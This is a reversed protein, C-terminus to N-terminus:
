ASFTIGGSITLGSPITIGPPPATFIVNLNNGGDTSNAGVYFRSTQNVGIDTVSLYDIGVSANTLNFTRRTGGASSNVTVVNGATGTISWTDITGQNAAFQVTHAVPKISALETFSNTGTISTTSSGTAGGLTFKNYSLSAGQFARASATTSSFLINATGKDFTLGTASLTWPSFSGTGSDALTWLGSGMMLTRTNSNNSLFLTTTVNYILADFTGRTHFIPQNATLADGLRFTGGPADVTIEFPISKGASTFVMTGSGSFTQSSSGSVTVGSGLTYSGYRNSATNHNLTVASTRTSADLAGINYTLALAVTTAAGSDTFTATDQALPFNNVAPTGSSTTAWATANWNQTGTLNWYVTKAAPFTIGSNGGCDGARTPSSGAAAGAITIDRFDCDNASIAAATITRATGITSSYIFGRQIASSGACTFTGNVTQNAVIQLQSLGTASATLTLNNFTNTGAGIIGRIGTSSGTFSVNYFTQAASTELYGNSSQTINIQSTGANFTLQATNTFQIAPALATASSLTLTSNNFLISKASGSNSLVGNATVSYGATDFTGQTVEIYRTSM